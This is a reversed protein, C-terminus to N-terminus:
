AISVLEQEVVGDRIEVVRFRHDNESDQPVVFGVTSIEQVTGSRGVHDLHKHGSLTLGLNPYGFLRAKVEDVNNIVYKHIGASDTGGWFNSYAHHNLLIFFRDPHAKLEAEVFDLTESTYAGNNQREITTDLGLIVHGGVDLKWDRGTVELDSPFFLRAYDSQGLPDGEPSPTSEKNGRVSYWPCALGSVIEAFRVADQDGAANNNFNDGGFLVLDVSPVMGNIKAVLTELWTVTNPVGLDLHTDTVHVLRLGDDAALSRRAFLSPALACTTLGYAGHKLFKRRTFSSM